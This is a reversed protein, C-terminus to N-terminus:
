NYDLLSKAEDQLLKKDEYDTGRLNVNEELVKRWARDMSGYDQVIATVVAKDILGHNIAAKLTPYRTMLLNVIGRDKNSRERFRIDQHMYEKVQKQFNRM